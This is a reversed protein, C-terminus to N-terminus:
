YVEPLEGRKRREFYSQRIGEPRTNGRPRLTSLDPLRRPYGMLEKYLSLAVKKKRNEWLHGILQLFRARSQNMEEDDLHLLQIM